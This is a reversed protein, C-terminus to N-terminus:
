AHHEGRALARPQPHRRAHQGAVGGAEERVGAREPRLPKVRRALLLAPPVRARVDGEADARPRAHPLPERQLLELQGHHVQVLTEEEPPRRPHLRRRRELEPDHEVELVADFEDCDFPARAHTLRSEEFIVFSL